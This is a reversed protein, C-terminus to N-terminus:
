TAVTILGRGVLGTMLLHIEIEPEPIIDIIQSITMGAGALDIIAAEATSFTSAEADIDDRSLTVRAHPAFTEYDSRQSEDIVRMADLIAADLPLGEGALGETDAVAHFEFTGDVWQLMEVLAERGRADGLRVSRLMGKEFVVFGENSGRFVMLTGRLTWTGLMQILSQIGLESIPGTIGPHRKPYGRARIEDVFDTLVQNSTPEGAFRIAFASGRGDVSDAHRIVTGPVVIEEDRDPHYLRLSVNKGIPVPEGELSLLVGTHSLDLTLVGRTDGGDLRVDGEIEVQTRRALRKGESAAGEDKDAGVLYGAFRSRIVSFQDSFQVAVGATGGSSAVEPAVVHVVEGELEITAGCYDLQIEVCVTERLHFDDGTAVFIGRNAINDRYEGRFAVESAFRIQLKRRRASM